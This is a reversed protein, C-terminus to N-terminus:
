SRVKIPLRDIEKIKGRRFEYLFEHYDWTFDCGYGYAYFLNRKIQERLEATTCAIMIKTRILYSIERPIRPDDYNEFNAGFWGLSEQVQLKKPRMFKPLRRQDIMGEYKVLDRSNTLFIIKALERSYRQAASYSSCIGELDYCMYILERDRDALRIESQILWQSALHNRYLWWFAMPVIFLRLDGVYDTLFDIAAIIVLLSFFLKKFRKGESFYKDEAHQIYACHKEHTAHGLKELAVMCKQARVKTAEFEEKGLNKELEDIFYAHYRTYLQAEYAAKEADIEVPVKTDIGM